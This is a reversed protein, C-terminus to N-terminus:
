DWCSIGLRQWCGSIWWYNVQWRKLSVMLQLKSEGLITPRSPPVVSCLQLPRIGHFYTSSRHHCCFLGLAVSFVTYFWSCGLLKQNLQSSHTACWHGMFGLSLGLVVFSHRHVGGTATFMLKWMQRWNKNNTQDACCVSCYLSSFMHSWLQYENWPGTNFEGLVQTWYSCYIWVHRQFSNTLQTFHATAIHQSM